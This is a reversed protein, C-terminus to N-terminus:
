TCIKNLIELTSVFCLDAKPQDLVIQERLERGPHVFNRYIRSINAMHIVVDGLLRKETFYALLDGLDAEYLAKKIISNHRQYAIEAVRKKECFYILLMEVISGSLIVVSKHNKMAYNLFLEDIDRALVGRISKKVRGIRDHTRFYGRSDLTDANLQEFGEIWSPNLKKPRLKPLEPFIFPNFEYCLENYDGRAGTKRLYGKDVWQQLLSQAKQDDTGMMVKVKWRPIPLCNDRFAADNKASTFFATLKQIVFENEKRLLELAQRYFRDREDRERVIASLAEYNRSVIDDKPDVRYARTILSFAEDIRGRAKKINSLNNLAASNRPELEVIHQYIQEAESDFKQDALAYAVEFTWLSQRTDADWSHFLDVVLAYAKEQHLENVLDIAAAVADDPKGDRCAQVIEAKRQIYDKKTM